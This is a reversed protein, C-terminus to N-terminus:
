IMYEFSKKQCVKTRLNHLKNKKEYSEMYMVWIGINLAKSFFAFAKKVYYLSLREYM